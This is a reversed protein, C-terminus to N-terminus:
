TYEEFLAIGFYNITMLINITENCDLFYCCLCSIRFPWTSTFGQDNWLYVSLDAGTHLLTIILCMVTATFNGYHQVYKDLGTPLLVFPAKRTHTWESAPSTHITNVWLFFGSAKITLVNSIKRRVNWWKGWLWRFTVFYIKGKCSSRKTFM